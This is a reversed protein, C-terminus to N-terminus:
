QFLIQMLNLMNIAPYAIECNTYPGNDSKKPRRGTKNNPNPIKEKPEIIHAKDIDIDKRRINRSNCPSPAPATLKCWLTRIRSTKSPLAKCRLAAKTAVVHANTGM